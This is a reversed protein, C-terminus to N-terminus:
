VAMSAGSRRAARASAMKLKKGHGELEQAKRLDHLLTLPDAQPREKRPHRRSAM